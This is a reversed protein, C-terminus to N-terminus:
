NDHIKGFVESQFSKIAGTKMTEKLIPMVVEPKTADRVVNGPNFHNPVTIGKYWVKAAVAYAPISVGKVAVWEEMVEIFWRPLRRGRSLPRLGYQQQYWYDPGIVELIVISGNQTVVPRTNEASYGSARLGKGRQSEVLGTVVSQGAFEMGVVAYNLM